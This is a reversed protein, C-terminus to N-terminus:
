SVYGKSKLSEVTDNIIQEVPTFQLGLDMLKKGANEKRLLGPQTDKPLRPINYQPYLEAIKAALDSFHSIDKCCLHRGTASKNEYLLIHAMAVDKVHVCGMYFDAYTETSGQLLALIAGVSSNLVPPLIPGLVTAPNVVAVDIGQDKSVEWAAKEAWLKSLPYWLGKNRCYDEDTWCDESKPVDAPWNPSPVISSISSTVVVRQIGVEKAAMIVNKTGKIAPELLEKQPDQVQGIVNPSALHLIGDTGKVAAIISNYDLLDMQFLKLREEDAGELALLHDTEKKENIDQVTAHVSYGRNLLLQVLWSGIFGSAGTVCVVGGKM